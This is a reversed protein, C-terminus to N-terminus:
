VPLALQKTFNKIISATAGWLLGHPTKFGQLIVTKGFRQFPLPQWNAENNLETVSLLFSAQVENYDNEWTTNKKLLGVYPSISFGTLTSYEPLHGLVNVNSQAINLEEKLERLATTRLTIDSVEFKGGPLCIEGPHHHLYTPRKCLLIHAHNDIDIIPLMVASARKKRTDKLQNPAATPSLLFRAMIHESNM